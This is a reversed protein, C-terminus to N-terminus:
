RCLISLATKQAAGSYPNGGIYQLAYACQYLSMHVYNHQIGSVTM